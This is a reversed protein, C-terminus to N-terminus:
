FLPVRANPLPRFGRLPGFTRALPQLGRVAEAAIALALHDGPCAHVGAGFVFSRRGPRERLFSDPDPNLAPDRNAAAIVLVVGQGAAIRHGGLEMDAAAFRRTNHIPPDWRSLEAMFGPGELAPRAQLLLAANGILGATADLSQQMLAIRNAGHVEEMLALVAADSRDLAAADAGPGIGAVFDHVQDVVTDLRAPAVELLRAMAQVPIATLLRNAETRGALDRVAAAAAATVAARDWRGTAAIVDPKHRAHHDGDTMRVLQAFVDGTPRGRLPAPVPEAPPRVRLGPHLFAEEVVAASSAVWLGIAEDFYLPRTARLQAYWPYPDPHSPAKLANEPFDM